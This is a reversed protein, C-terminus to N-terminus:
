HHNTIFERLEVMGDKDADMGDFEAQGAAMFDARPVLNDNDQDMQDFAVQKAAQNEAYRPGRQTEDAGQGLQLGMYEQASLADDENADMANFVAERWNAAESTAVFGDGNEDLSDFRDMMNSGGQALAIPASLAVAVLVAYASFASRKM